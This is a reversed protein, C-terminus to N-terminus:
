RCRRKIVRQLWLSKISSFRRRVVLLDHAVLVEGPVGEVLDTRVVGWRDEQVGFVSGANAVTFLQVSEELLTFLEPDHGSVDV